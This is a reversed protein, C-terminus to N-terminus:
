VLDETLQRQTGRQESTHKRRIEDTRVRVTRGSMEDGGAASVQANRLSDLSVTVNGEVPRVPRNGDGDGVEPKVCRYESM